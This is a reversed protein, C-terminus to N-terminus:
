PTSRFHSGVAKVSVKPDKTSRELGNWSIEHMGLVDCHPLFGTLTQM